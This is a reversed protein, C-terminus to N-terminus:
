DNPGTAYCGVESTPNEIGSNLCKLLRCQQEKTLSRFYDEDFVAAMINGPNTQKISLIKSVRDNIVADSLLNSCLIPKM